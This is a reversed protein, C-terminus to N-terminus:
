RDDVSQGRPMMTLSNRKGRSRPPKPKQKLVSSIKQQSTAWIHVAPDVMMLLAFVDDYRNRLDGNLVCEHHAVRNRFYSLRYLLWHIQDGTVNLEFANKLVEDWVRQRYGNTVPDIQEQEDSPFLGHWQGFTVQSLVDGCTIDAGNRPHAPRADREDKAKCAKDYANSVVSKFLKDLPEPMLDPHLVWEYVGGNDRCWRALHEDVHNRVLVEVVSLMELFAASVEANWRYLALGHKHHGGSEVLYPKFRESGIRHVVRDRKFDTGM